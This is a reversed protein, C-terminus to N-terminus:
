SGFRRALHQYHRVSYQEVATMVSTWELAYHHAWEWAAEESMLLLRVDRLDHYQGTTLYHKSGEISIVHGLPSLVHGLEHLAVAYTTEDIVPAVFIAKILGGLLGVTGGAAQHPQRPDIPVLVVKFLRCLEKVHSAYRDARVASEHRNDTM